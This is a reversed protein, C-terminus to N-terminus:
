HGAQNVRGTALWVTDPGAVSTWDELVTRGPLCVPGPLVAVVAELFAPLTQPGAVFDVPIAALAAAAAVVGGAASSDPFLSSFAQKNGAALAVQHDEPVGGLLGIGLGLHSQLLRSFDNYIASLDVAHSAKNLLLYLKGSFGNLQLVRLLAFGETQSRSEPTVILIVVASAKCCALLSRADMGSTDILFDDYGEQVDISRMSHAHQEAEVDPWLRMPLKCSLIDVGLYGRRMIGYEDNDGTRRLLAEPRQLDLLEEVASAQGPAHFVGAFSGRRVLELALNIALQTKGVQALGSTITMIRTMVAQLVGGSM